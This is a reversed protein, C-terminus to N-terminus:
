LASSLHPLYQKLNKKYSSLDLNKAVFMPEPELICGSVLLAGALASSPVYPNVDHICQPDEDLFHLL